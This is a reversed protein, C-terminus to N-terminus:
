TWWRATWTPLWPPKWTTGGHAIGAGRDDQLDSLDEAALRWYPSGTLLMDRHQSRAEMLALSIVADNGGHGNLM